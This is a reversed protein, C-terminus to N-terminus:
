WSFLANAYLKDFTAKVKKTNNVINIYREISQAESIDVIGDKFAGDVYQNLDEVAGAVNDAAAKAADATKGRGCSKPRKRRFHKNQRPYFNNAANLYAIFDGYKTNFTDYRGDVM